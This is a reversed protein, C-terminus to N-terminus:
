VGGSADSARSLRALQETTMDIANSGLVPHRVFKNMSTRKKLQHSPVPNQSGFTRGICRNPSNLYQEAVMGRISLAKAGNSRESALFV